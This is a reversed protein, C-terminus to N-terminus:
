RHETKEKQKAKGKQILRDIRKDYEPHGIYGDDYYWLRPILEKDRYEFGKFRGEFDEPYARVGFHLDLAGTMEVAVYGTNDIYVYRPRLKLIPRPFKSVEPAPGILVEYQGPKLSGQALQKSLENCAELLAQHDTKCLLRVKAGELLYHGTVLVLLVLVFVIFVAIIIRKFITQNDRKM